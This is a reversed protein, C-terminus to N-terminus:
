LERGARFEGWRILASAGVNAIPAPPLRSPSLLAIQDDLLSSTEGSALEAILKGSISGKATGLGNQCGAAFLNSEVEGFAPASNRSLCLAGGWRYEMEVKNLMPFRTSFSRNHTQVIKELRQEDVHLGPEVTARNRIVIRHGGTGSIKRVTTGLPDAPTLAWSSQGGLLKAESDSLARTMSGYTYIHLLRQEYFGFNQLHGNVALIVRPASVSGTSTSASWDQQVRELATVPSNEYIRVGASELGAALQRVYLAPQLMATGKSLLGDIYSRIGTLEHMAAADLREYPEELRALHEAYANNHDVGRQSMAGNIKGAMSIADNGMNYADKCALAYGIGARNLRIERQDREAIGNYSSSTLDHPVDIMFGSNRGAPGHAVRDADMVVIRDQPHLENLRRAASLGTFGAGIVLWDATSQKSLSERVPLEPLIADWAAPGPNSPLRRTKM